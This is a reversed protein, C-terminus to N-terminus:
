KFNKILENLNKQENFSFKKAFCSNERFHTQYQTIVKSEM